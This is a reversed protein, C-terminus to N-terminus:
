EGHYHECELCFCEEDPVFASCDECKYGGAEIFLDMTERETCGACAPCLERDMDKPGVTVLVKTEKDCADCKTTETSNM